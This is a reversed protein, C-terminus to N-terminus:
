PREDTLNRRSAPLLDKYRSSEIWTWRNSAPHSVYFGWKRVNPGHVVLSWSTAGILRTITHAEDLRVRKFSGPRRPRYRSSDIERVSSFREIYGGKLIVSVFTWPHDHVDKGPDPAHMRHVFIGGLPKWEFGWRDLYVRGDARRLRMRKRTRRAVPGVLAGLAATAGLALLAVPM